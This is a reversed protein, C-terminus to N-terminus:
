HTNQKVFNLTKELMLEHGSENKLGHNGKDISILENDVGNADLKEKLKESESFPVIKDKSGHVILTPVADADIYNIPSYIKLRDIAEKKEKKINKETFGFIMDNRMKYIKPFIIKFFFIKFGAEETRFLKNLDAPGYYDIVYDVKASYEPFSSNASFQNEDSYAALMAIHAGASTGWLGINDADLNYQQANARLWKVAEKCDEVPTPFHTNDNLLTYNISAVAYGNQVFKLIFDNLYYKEPFAKDGGNWGGGHLFVVVPSKKEKSQPLFIDLKQQATDRTKYTVNKVMMVDSISEQGNFFLFGLILLFSLIRKM